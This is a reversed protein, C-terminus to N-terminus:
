FKKDHRMWHFSVMLTQLAYLDCNAKLDHSHEGLEDFTGQVSRSITIMMQSIM